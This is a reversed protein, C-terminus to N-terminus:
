ERDGSEHQEDKRRSEDADYQREEEGNILVLASRRLKRLARAEIQRVHETSVGLVAAVEDLTHEGENAVVLACDRTPELRHEGYSRHALHYCCETHRCDASSIRHSCDDVLPFRRLQRASSSGGNTGANRVRGQSGDGQNTKPM